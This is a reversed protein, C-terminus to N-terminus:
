KLLAAVSRQIDLRNLYRRHGIIGIKLAGAINGVFGAMEGTGGAAICPAAVAFFADGAGVTDVISAGFSPVNVVAGESRVFCGARGHTVIFNDCDVLAPLSEGVVASLDAHKDRVALRAEMADVCMFNARSYKNIMNYGINGANSQVNVALFRAESELLKITDADFLGHGFDCVIAVDADALKSSLTIRFKEQVSKPLPTDDMTYLEFLKRVYTPEVFRTKEVTPGDPRCVFSVKVENDLRERVFSEYNERVAPDGVLTILEVNTSLAALHNAIAVAGGAFVEEDRRLTALINEKAAKGMAEVYIYRDIITEGIVVIKLKSIEGLLHIFRQEFDPDTERLRELYTRAASNQVDFHRNLLTSSSFTIDDTFVVKGGFSEVLDVEAAIKGTIDKKADSYESGKVYIHPKVAEIATLASPDEIVAVYDIVDLGALVEARLSSTFAPRGPGKNVFSDGTITVVLLDGHGLATKFHRLHGIHLLDFVGHCLVLKRGQARLDDSIQALRHVDVVKGALRGVTGRKSGIMPEGSSALGQRSM